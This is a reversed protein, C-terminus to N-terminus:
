TNANEDGFKFTKNEFAGCLSAIANNLEGFDSEIGLYVNEPSVPAQPNEPKVANLAEKAKGVATLLKAIRDSFRPEKEFPSVIRHIRWSIDSHLARAEQFTIKDDLNSLKQSIETLEITITQIKVIQGAETAARRAQWAAWFASISAVLGLFGIIV